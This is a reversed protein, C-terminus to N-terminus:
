REALEGLLAGIGAAFQAESFEEVARQRGAMGMRRAEEPNQLLRSIADAVDFPSEANVCWGTVGHVVAEVAGASEGAVCPLAAAAAELFVLGFGEGLPKAGGRYRGPLAFVSAASYAAHLQASDLQGTMEVTAAVGLLHILRHLRPADNGDGVVVLRAGPHRRQVQPWSLLLLDVGKYADARDLRAVSLVTPRDFAPQWAASKDASPLPSSERPTMVPAKFAYRVLRVNERGVFCGTSVQDATFRSGALVRTARRLAARVSARPRGWSERGHCWVVYPAGSVMRCLWAIPALHAHCAIVLFGHGRWRRARRMARFAFLVRNTTHTLGAPRVPLVTVRENGCQGILVDILMRTAGQIGGIGDPDTALVLVRPTTVEYEILRATAEAHAKWTHREALAHGNECMRERLTPEDFVRRILCALQADDSADTLVLAEEKPGLLATVGAEASVIVPLGVAFAELAPLHFADEASPAVLCDAAAYYSAIDTSHGEFRVQDSVGLRRADARFPEADDRGVVLLQYSPGLHQLARIATPLGKKHWDNGVLLLVRLNGVALRERMEARRAGRQSISFEGLDIGYTVVPVTSAPRDFTTELEQADLMSLAWVSAPGAYVRRELWRVLRWYLLRHLIRALRRSHHLPRIALGRVQERVSERVGGRVRRWHKAFIIHVSVARADLGNAGPSYVVHPAGLRWADWARIIRGALLWWLYRLLLPGPLFWVRRVRVGDLNVGYTRMTYVSLEFRDRWREVQETICRETAGDRHLEPTIIWVRRRAAPDSM